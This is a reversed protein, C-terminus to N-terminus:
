TCRGLTSCMPRMKRTAMAAPARQAAMGAMRFTFFPTLSTMAVIMSFVM